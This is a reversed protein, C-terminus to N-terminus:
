IRVVKKKAIRIEVDKLVDVWNNSQNMNIVHQVVENDYENRVWEGEVKIEEEAVVYKFQKRGDVLKAPIKKTTEQCVLHAYFSNNEKAYRLGKVM